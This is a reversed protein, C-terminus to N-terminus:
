WLTFTSSTINAWGNSIAWDGQKFIHKCKLQIEAKKFKYVNHRYCIICMHRGNQTPTSPYLLFSIDSM